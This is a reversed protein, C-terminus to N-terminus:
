APRRWLADAREGNEDSLLSQAAFRIFLAALEKEEGFWLFLAGDGYTQNGPREERTQGQMMHVDHLAWGPSFHFIKDPGPDRFSQGFAVIRASPTHAARAIQAALLNSLSISDIVAPIPQMHDLVFLEDRLYDLGEGIQAGVRLPRFGPANEALAPINFKTVGALKPVFFALLDGAGHSRFDIAVRFLKGNADVKIHYHPSGTPDHLGDKVFGALVGYQRDIFTPNDNPFPM